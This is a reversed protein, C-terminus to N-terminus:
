LGYEWPTKVPKLKAFEWEKHKQCVPLFQSGDAYGTDTKIIADHVACGIVEGTCNSYGCETITDAIQQCILGALPSAPSCKTPAYYTLDRENNSM